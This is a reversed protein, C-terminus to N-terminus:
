GTPVSWVDLQANGWVGIIGCTGLLLGRGIEPLTDMVQSAVGVGVMGALALWLLRQGEPTQPARYDLYYALAGAGAAAAIETINAKM